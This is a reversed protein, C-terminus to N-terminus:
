EFAFKRKRSPDSPELDVTIEPSLLHGFDTVDCQFISTAIETATQPKPSHRPKKSPPEVTFLANSVDDHVEETWLVHFDSQVQQICSYM